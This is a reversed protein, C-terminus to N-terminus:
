EAPRFNRIFNIVLENFKEAEGFLFYHRVPIVYL